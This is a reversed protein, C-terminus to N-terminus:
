RSGDLKSLSPLRLAIAGSQPSKFVYKRVLSLPLASRNIPLQDKISRVVFSFCIFVRTLFIKNGKNQTPNKANVATAAFASGTVNLVVPTNLMLPVLTTFKELTLPVVVM